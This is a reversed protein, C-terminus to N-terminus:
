EGSGGRTVTVRGLEAQSGGGGSNCGATNVCSEEVTVTGGGGAAAVSTSSGGPLVRVEAGTPANLAPTCGYVPVCLVDPPLVQQSFTGIQPVLKGTTAAGTRGVPQDYSVIENGRTDRVTIGASGSVFAGTGPREVTTSCRVEVLPTVSAIAAACANSGATHADHASETSTASTHAMAAATGLAAVAFLPFLVSRSVTRLYM